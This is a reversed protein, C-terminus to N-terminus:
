SVIEVGSDATEVYYSRKYEKALENAKAQDAPFGFVSSGSGSM